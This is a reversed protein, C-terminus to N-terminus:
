RVAPTLTDLDVGPIKPAQAADKIMQKTGDPEPVREVVADISLGALSRVEAETTKANLMGVHKQVIKLDRDIIFSTPLAYIGTFVRELEATSMVVPYNM